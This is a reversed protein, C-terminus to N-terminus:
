KKFKLYVYFILGAGIITGGLILYGKVTNEIATMDPLTVDAVSNIIGTPPNLPQPIIPSPNDVVKSNIISMLDSYQGDDIPSLGGHANYVDTYFKDVQLIYTQAESYSIEPRQALFKKTYNYFTDRDQSGFVDDWFSIAM